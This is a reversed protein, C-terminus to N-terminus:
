TFPSVNSVSTILFIRLSAYADVERTIRKRTWAMGFVIRCLVYTIFSRRHFSLTVNIVHPALIGCGSASYVLLRRYLDAKLVIFMKDSLVVYTIVLIHRRTKDIIIWFIYARDYLGQVDMVVKGRKYKRLKM